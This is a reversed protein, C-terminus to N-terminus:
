CSVVLAGCWSLVVGGSCWAVLVGAGADFASRRRHGVVPRFTRGSFLLDFMAATM